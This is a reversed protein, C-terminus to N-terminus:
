VALQGLLLSLTPHVVVEAKETPFAPVSHSITIEHLYVRRFSVGNSRGGCVGLGLILLRGIHFFLLCGEPSQVSLPNHQREACCHTM